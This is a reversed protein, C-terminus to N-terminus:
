SSHLYILEKGERGKERGNKGYVIDIGEKGNQGKGDERREKKKRNKRKGEM